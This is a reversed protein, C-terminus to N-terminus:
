LLRSLSRVSVNPLLTLFIIEFYLTLPRVHSYMGPRRACARALVGTSAGTSVVGVVRSPSGVRELVPAGSDVVESKFNENPFSDNILFDFANAQSAFGVSLLMACIIKKM